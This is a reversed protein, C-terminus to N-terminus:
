RPRHTSTHSSDSTPINPKTSTAPITAMVYGYEDIAADKLGIDRLEAALDRLLTLQKATSPYTDSAENSQTDYTVYRLFRELVASM